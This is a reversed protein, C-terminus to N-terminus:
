SRGEYADDLRRMAIHPIGAEEFQEGVPEFGFSAYFAELHAQAHLVFRRFGAQRADAITESVLRRGYGHGRYDPLVAFRELKAGLRGAVPVTRWRATAVPTDGVWGLLHRSTSDHADWEEEPPCAQEEIFVLTRVRRAHQWGEEDLVPAVRFASIPM